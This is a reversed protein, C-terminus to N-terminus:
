SSELHYIQYFDFSIQSHNLPPSLEATIPQVVTLLWSHIHLLPASRAHNRSKLKQSLLLVGHSLSWFELGSFSILYLRHLEGPNLEPSGGVFILHPSLTGISIDGQLSRWPEQSSSLTPSFPLSLSCSPTKGPQSV